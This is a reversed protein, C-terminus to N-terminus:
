ERYKSDAYPLNSFNELMRFGITQAHSYIWPYNEKLRENFLGKIKPERFGVTIQFIVETVIVFMSFTLITQSFFLSWRLTSDKNDNKSAVMILCIILSFFIINILNTQVKGLFFFMLGMLLYVLVGTVKIKVLMFWYILSQHRKELEDFIKNELKEAEREKVFIKNISVLITTCILILWDYFYPKFRFYIPDDEKWKNLKEFQFMNFFELDGRAKPDDIFKQYKLSFLYQSM